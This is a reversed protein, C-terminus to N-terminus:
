CGLGEFATHCLTHLLVDGVARPRSHYNTWPPVRVHVRLPNCWKALYARTQLHWTRRM